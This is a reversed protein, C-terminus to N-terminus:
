TNPSHTKPLTTQREHICYHNEGKSTGSIYPVKYIDKLFNLYFM